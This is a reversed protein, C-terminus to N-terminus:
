GSFGLPEGEPIAASVVGSPRTVMRMGWGSLTNRVTLVGPMRAIPFAVPRPQTEKSIRSLEDSLHPTAGRALIPRDGTM